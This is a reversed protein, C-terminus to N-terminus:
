TMRNKLSMPLRRKQPELATLTAFMHPALIAVVAVPIPACIQENRHPLMDGASHKQAEVTAQATTPIPATSAAPETNTATPM